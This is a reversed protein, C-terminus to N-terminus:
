PEVGPNTPPLEKRRAVFGSVWIKKNGLGFGRSNM